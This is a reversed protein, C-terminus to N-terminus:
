GVSGGGHSVGVALVRVDNEHIHRHGADVADLGGTTKARKAIRRVHQDECGQVRGVRHFAGHLGAGLSEYGLGVRRLVDDAAYDAYALPGRLEIRGALSLEDIIQAHLPGLGPTVLSPGQQVRQGGPLAFGHQEGGFAAGVGLDCSAHEYRFAGRFRMEGTGRVFEVHPAHLQCPQRVLPGTVAGDRM